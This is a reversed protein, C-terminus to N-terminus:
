EFECEGICIQLQRNRIHFKRIQEKFFDYSQDSQDLRTNAPTHSTDVNQLNSDDRVKMLKSNMM